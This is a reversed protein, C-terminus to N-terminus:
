REFIEDNRVVCARKKGGIAEYHEGKKSKKKKVGKQLQLSGLERRFALNIIANLVGCIRM